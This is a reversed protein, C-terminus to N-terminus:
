QNKYFIHPSQILELNCLTDFLLFTFLSYCFNDFCCFIFNIDSGAKLIVNCWSMESIGPVKASKRKFINIWSFIIEYSSGHRYFKWSYHIAEFQRQWLTKYNKRFFKSCPKILYNWFPVKSFFVMVAVSTTKM